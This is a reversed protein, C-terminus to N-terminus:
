EVGSDLRTDFSSILATMSPMIEVSSDIPTWARAISGLPSMVQISSMVEGVVAGPSSVIM